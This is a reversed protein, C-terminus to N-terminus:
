SFVSTLILNERSPQAPLCEGLVQRKQNWTFQGLAQHRMVSSKRSLLTAKTSDDQAGYSAEEVVKKAAALFGLREQQEFDSLNDQYCDVSYIATRDATIAAHSKKWAKNCVDLCRRWHDSRTGPNNEEIAATAYVDAKVLWNEANSGGIQEALARARALSEQVKLRSAESRAISLLQNIEAVIEKM